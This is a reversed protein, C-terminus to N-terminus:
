KREESASKANSTDPEATKERKSPDNADENETVPKEPEGTEDEDESNHNISEDSDEPFISEDPSEMETYTHDDFDTSEEAQKLNLFHFAAFVSAAVAAVGIVAIAAAPKHKAEKKSVPRGIIGCIVTYNDGENKARLLQRKLMYIMWAEASGSKLLDAEMEDEYVYEWFGDSCVLFADGEQIEIGPYNRKLNLNESSGLVKLLKSRDESHRIEEFSMNGMDVAAQCVSHDKTCAIIKRNRFYYVRSDGVNAYRFIGNEVFAAAITTRASGNLDWVAKNAANLIEMIKDQGYNGTCNKRISKIACASAEEGNEHGGLGDAVAFVHDDTWFSDENISHGGNCTYKAVDIFM